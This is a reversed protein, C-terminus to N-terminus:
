FDGVSNLLLKMKNKVLYNFIKTKSGNNEYSTYAGVISDYVETPIKDFSVLEENREYNDIEFQSRCAEKGHEIFESLRDAKMATQKKPKVGNARDVAWETSTLCNPINDGTDGTVVHNIVFENVSGTHTILKKTRPSWQKVNKYKQLQVFDGDSSIIIIDQPEDEFVGVKVTENTQLYKCLCAIVDDAEAGEVDILKYNFNNKIEDKLENIVTFITDWDMDSEQRDHKRHGKYWWYKTKRWYSRSDCALVINGYKSGYKKKYSLLMNFFM